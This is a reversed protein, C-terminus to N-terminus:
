VKHKKHKADIQYIVFYGDENYYGYIRFPKNGKGYHIIDRSIGNICEREKVPGKRRLFLTDVETISLRKNITDKIFRHFEKLESEKLQSFDYEAHLDSSIVMEFLRKKNDLRSGSSEPNRVKTLPKRIM